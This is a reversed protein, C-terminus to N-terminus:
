ATVELLDTLKALLYNAYRIRAAGYQGEWKPLNEYAIEAYSARNDYDSLWDFDEGDEEDRDYITDHHALFFEQESENHFVEESTEDFSVYDEFLEQLDIGDEDADCQHYPVPYYDDGSYEDWEHMWVRIQSLKASYQSVGIARRIYYCLGMGTQNELEANIADIIAIIEDRKLDYHGYQAM